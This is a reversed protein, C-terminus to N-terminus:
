RQQPQSQQRLRWRIPAAAHRCETYDQTATTTKMNTYTHKDECSESHYQTNFLLTGCSTLRLPCEGIDQSYADWTRRLCNKQRKESIEAPHYFEVKKKNANNVISPKHSGKCWLSQYKHYASLNSRFPLFVGALGTALPWVLQLSQQKKEGDMLSVDLYFFALTPRKINRHSSGCARCQSCFIVESSVFQFFCWEPQAHWKSVCLSM